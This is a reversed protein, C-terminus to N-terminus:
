SAVVDSTLTLTELARQVRKGQHGKARGGKMVMAETNHGQLSSNSNAM